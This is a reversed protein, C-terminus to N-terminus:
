TQTSRTMPNTMISRSRAPATASAKKSPAGPQHKILKGEKWLVEVWDLFTPKALSACNIRVNVRSEPKGPPLPPFARRTGRRIDGLPGSTTRPETLIVEASDSEVVGPSRGIPM